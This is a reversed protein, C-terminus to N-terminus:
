DKNSIVGLTQGLLIFSEDLTKGSINFSKEGKAAVLKWSTIEHPGAGAHKSRVPIERVQWGLNTIRLKIKEANMVKREIKEHPYNIKGKKKWLNIITKLMTKLTFNVVM